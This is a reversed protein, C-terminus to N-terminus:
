DHMILKEGEFTKSVSAYRTLSIGQEKGKLRQAESLIINVSRTKFIM